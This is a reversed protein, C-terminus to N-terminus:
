KTWRADIKQWYESASIPKFRVVDGAHFVIEGRGSLDEPTYAIIHWGGPSAQPYIATQNDAIAVAGPPVKSRPSNLRPMKLQAPTLGMYAFNPLFGVAFVRYVGESHMTIIDSIPLSLSESVRELDNPRELISANPKRSQADELMPEYCLEILHENTSSLNEILALEDTQLALDQLFRNVSFVDCRMVDVTILLSAYSPVYNILWHPSAKSVSQTWRLVYANAVWLARNNEEDSSSPSLAVNLICSDESVWHMLTQANLRITTYGHHLTDDLM